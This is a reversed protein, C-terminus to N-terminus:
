RYILLAELDTPLTTLAQPSPKISDSVSYISDVFFPESSIIETLGNGDVYSVQARLLEGEDDNTLTYIADGDTADPNIRDFWTDTDGDFVQWHYNFESDIGDADTISSADLSVTQGVPKASCCCQLRTQSLLNLLAVAVQYLLVSKFITPHFGISIAMQTRWSLVPASIATRMRLLRCILNYNEGELFVHQNPSLVIYNDSSAGYDGMAFQFELSESLSNFGLGVYRESNLIDLDFDGVLDGLDKKLVWENIVNDYYFWGFSDGIYNEQRFENSLNDIDNYWVSAHPSAHFLYPTEYVPTDISFSFRSPYSFQMDALAEDTYSFVLGEDTIHRRFRNRDLVFDYEPLYREWQREIIKFDTGELNIDMSLFGNVHADGFVSITPVDVVVDQGASYTLENTGYGDLYSLVGRLQKGVEASTLTYSDDGDSADASTLESWTTGNDGSVEWAYQYTPTWGEFNDADEIASADISITQGVKFDGSLTRTGTPTNNPSLPIELGKRAVDNPIDVWTAIPYTEGGSGYTTQGRIMTYDQEGFGTADNPQGYDWNTYTVEQGSSWVFIGENDKDTLGIYPQTLNENLGVSDMLDVIFDNEEADNITVLHGGLAVANAEAEEWTPGEVIVYASDGRRIFPIEAIGTLQIAYNRDDWVSQGGYSAYDQNNGYNDPQGYGWNTYTLEEDSSWKWEGETEQDTLGIWGEYGFIHGAFFDENADGITILHGGLKVSNAEAQSWSPGDVISYLSNGRIVPTVLSANSEVVENTGYGDLYSVVGRLQKGVEASTLTYSDEGDNADSSTLETWTFGNDNSVEWSYEYTPTWGEFNDADDIASADISITQGVKFDGSLTPTGTAINNEGNVEVIAFPLGASRTDIYIDHWKGSTGFNIAMGGYNQIESNVPEGSDWNFYNAEEGSVWRWEGENEADSLGLWFFSVGSEPLMQEQAYELAKEKFTNLIWQNEADDNIEVLNGGLLKADQVSEEWWKLGDAPLLHYTNANRYETQLPVLNEYSDDYVTAVFAETGDLSGGSDLRGSTSGALLNVGPELAEISLVFDNGSSGIQTTKLHSGNPDYNRIFIDAGGVHLGQELSSHTKGVVVIEGRKDTTVAHARDWHNTGFFDAWQLHGEPSYSAIFADEIGSNSIGFMDGYRAFGVGIVSNDSLITLDTLTDLEYGGQLRTGKTSGDRGLKTIFSDRSGFGTEGDIGGFSWGGLIIDGESDVEAVWVKQEGPKELTKQWNVSGDFRNIEAIYVDEDSEQELRAFGIAYLRDEYGTLSTIHISAYDKLEIEWQKEGDRPDLSMVTSYANGYHPSQNCGASDM